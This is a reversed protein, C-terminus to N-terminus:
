PNTPAPKCSTPTCGKVLDCTTFTVHTDVFYTGTPTEVHSRIEYDTASNSLMLQEVVFPKGTYGDAPSSLKNDQDVVPIPFHIQGNTIDFKFTRTSVEQHLDNCVIIDTVAQTEANIGNMKMRANAMCSVGQKTSAGGSATDFIQLNIPEPNNKEVFFIDARYYTYKGPLMLNNTKNVADNAKMSVPKQNVAPKMSIPDYKPYTAACITGGAISSGGGNCGSLVSVLGCSLVLVRLFLSMFGWMSLVWFLGLKTLHLLSVIPKLQIGRRTLYKLRPASDM